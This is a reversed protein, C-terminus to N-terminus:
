GGSGAIPNAIQRYELLLQRLAQAEAPGLGAQAALPLSAEALALYLDTLEPKSRGLAELHSRVTATDGRMVPGTVQNGIDGKAVNELTARALPLLASLAQEESFGAAQWLEVAGHLLAALYGCSLVAAAHYLPRAADSICVPQGGLSRAAADLFERLRGEASIAFTVGSLRAVTEAPDNLGAFTQLPHFAGTSAGQEAAPRLIERGAAGCCHVVQHDPRWRVAAAVASIAADPTTIFVLDAGDALDQSSELAQCGPIRAALDRASVTRRSAAAAVNYNRQALALALGGGLVGVGIFGIRPGASNSDRDRGKDKDM